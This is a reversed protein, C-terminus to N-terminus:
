EIDSGDLSIHNLRNMPKPEEVVLDTVLEDMLKGFDGVSSKIQLDEQNDEMKVFCNEEDDDNKTELANETTGTNLQDMFDAFNINYSPESVTRPIIM